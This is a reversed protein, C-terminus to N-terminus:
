NNWGREGEYQEWIEEETLDEVESERSTDWAVAGENVEESPKTTVEYPTVILSDDDLPLSVVTKMDRNLRIYEFKTDSLELLDKGLIAKVVSCPTGMVISGSLLACFPNINGNKVKCQFCSDFVKNTSYYNYIYLEDGEKYAFCKWHRMHFKISIKIGIGSYWKNHLTHNKDKYMLLGCEERKQESVLRNPKIMLEGGTLEMNEPPVPSVHNQAPIFWCDEEGIGYKTLADADNVKYPDDITPTKYYVVPLDKKDKRIEVEIPPMLLDEATINGGGGVRAKYEESQERM